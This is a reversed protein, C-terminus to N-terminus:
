GQKAAKQRRKPKITAATTQQKTQVRALLASASEYDRRAATALAHETPVLEGRFAKALLSQTIRSVHTQAQTLRAEIQDAFAFLKEVQHVIEHQEALPPLCAHFALIEPFYATPHASGRAFRYLADHEALFLTMLYRPEIADTCVWGVLDQSTAMERGLILSYGISNATRTLCVTNAPLLRAASNALGLETVHQITDKIVLGNHNRADKIGVWAIPGDWYEPHTRSPTHGSELRAVDTLKTWTWKAPADQGCDGVSLGSDGLICEDSARAAQSSKGPQVSPTAPIADPNQERWDATLRGSCAAALVSQRFRKLLGPVRSLRQQSSSVKGLLEELKAVIRRQEALPPLPLEFERLTESKVSQVTTGERNEALILHTSAKLALALWRNLDKSGSDFCKLDQNIAAPRRLVAVPLTHKLVGSRVVVVVAGPECLKATSNQLGAETIFETGVEIEDTKIDGSSLWPVNGNWYRSETRSPTGGSSIKFVEGVRCKGWGEPLESADHEPEAPSKVARDQQKGPRQSM